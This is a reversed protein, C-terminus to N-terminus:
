KQKSFAQSFFDASLTSRINSHYVSFLPHKFEHEDLSTPLLSLLLVVGFM